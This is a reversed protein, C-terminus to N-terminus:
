SSLGKIEKRLVKIKRKEDKQEKHLLQIHNINEKAKWCTENLSFLDEM